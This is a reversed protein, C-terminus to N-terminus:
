FVLVSDYLKMQAFVCIVPIVTSLKWQPDQKIVYILIPSNSQLKHGTQKIHLCLNEVWFKIIFECDGLIGDVVNICAASEEM